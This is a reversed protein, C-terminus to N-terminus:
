WRYNTSRCFACDVRGEGVLTRGCRHCEDRQAVHTVIAKASRLDCGARFLVDMADVTRGLRLEALVNSKTAATLTEPEDWAGGCRLCHVSRDTMDAAERAIIDKTDLRRGTTM